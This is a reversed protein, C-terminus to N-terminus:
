VNKTEEDSLFYCIVANDETQSGFTCLSGLKHTAALCPDFDRWSKIMTCSQTNIFIHAAQCHRPWRDKLLFPLATAGSHTISMFLYWTHKPFPVKVMFTPFCERPFNPCRHLQHNLTVKSSWYKRLNWSCSKNLDTFKQM